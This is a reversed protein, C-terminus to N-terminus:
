AQSASITSGGSRTASAIMIWGQITAASRDTPRGAASIPCNKPSLKTRRVPRGSATTAPSWVSADSTASPAGLRGLRYM